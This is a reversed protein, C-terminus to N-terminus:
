FSDISQLKRITQYCFMSEEFYRMQKFIKKLKGPLVCCSDMPMAIMYYLM